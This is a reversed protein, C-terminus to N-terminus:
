LLDTGQQDRDGKGFFIEREDASKKLEVVLLHRNQDWDLRRCCDSSASRAKSLKSTGFPVSRPDGGTGSSSRVVRLVESYRTACFFSPVSRTVLRVSAIM